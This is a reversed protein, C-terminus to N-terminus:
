GASPLPEFRKIRERPVVIAGGHEKHRITVLGTATDLEITYGADIRFFTTNVAARGQKNGLRDVEDLLHVAGFAIPKSM